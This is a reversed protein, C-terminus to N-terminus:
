AVVSVSVDSVSFLSVSLIHGLTLFITLSIHQTPCFPFVSLLLMVGGNISVSTNGMHAVNTVTVERLSTLYAQFLLFVCMFACM